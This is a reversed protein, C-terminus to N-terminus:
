VLLLSGKLYLSVLLLSGSDVLSSLSVALLVLISFVSQNLSLSVSLGCSLVVNLSLWVKNQNDSDLTHVLNWRLWSLDELQQSQVLDVSSGEDLECLCSKLQQLQNVWINDETVRVQGGDSSQDVLSTVTLDVLLSNGQAFVGDNLLRESLETDDRNLIQDVLNVSNTRVELLGVVKQPWELQGVRVSAPTNSSSELM